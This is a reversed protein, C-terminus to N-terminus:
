SNLKHLRGTSEEGEEEHHEGRFKFCFDAVDEGVIVELVCV